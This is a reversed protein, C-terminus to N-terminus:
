SPVGFSGPSPAGAASSKDEYRALGTVRAGEILDHGAERTGLGSRLGRVVGAM